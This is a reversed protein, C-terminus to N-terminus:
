FEMIEFDDDFKMTAQVYKQGNADTRIDEDKMKEDKEKSLTEKVTATITPIEKDFSTDEAVEVAVAAEENERREVARRILGSYKKDTTVARAMKAIQESPAVAIRESKSFNPIIPIGEEQEKEEKITPIESPEETSASEEKPIGQVTLSAKATKASPQVTPIEDIIREPEETVSKENDEERVTVSKDNNERENETANEQEELSVANEGQGSNEKVLKDANDEQNKYESRIEEQKVETELDKVPNEQGLNAKESVMKAVAKAIDDEIERTIAETESRVTQENAVADREQAALDAADSDMREDFVAEEVYEVEYEEGEELEDEDVYVVEYEEDQAWEGDTDEDIYEIEYEEGEELEDEDVYVVEYEEDEETEKASEFSLNNEEAPPNEFSLESVATEAPNEFTYESDMEEEQNGFPYELSDTQTQNLFPATFAAGTAKVNRVTAGMGERKMMEVTARLEDREATMQALAQATLYTQEEALRVKEEQEEQLDLSLQVSGDEYEDSAMKQKMRENYLENSLLEGIELIQQCRDETEMEQLGNMLEARNNAITNLKEDLVQLVIEYDSRINHYADSILETVETLMEDTYILSAAYIENANGLADIEDQDLTNFDLPAVNTARRSVRMRSASHEAQYIIKEAEKKAENLIKGKRDNVEHYTKLENTMQSELESLLSKVEDKYVMVKGSALPVPSASDIIGQLRDIIEKTRSKEAITAM